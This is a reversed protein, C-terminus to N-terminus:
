STLFSSVNTNLPVNLRDAIQQIYQAPPNGAYVMSFSQLTRANHFAILEDQAGLMLFNCLATFGATLSPFKAIWGGDTAQFGEQAGWSATLTSLKLNGPNNVEPKSGEEIAIAHAWEIIKSPFGCIPSNNMCM